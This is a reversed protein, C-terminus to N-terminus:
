KNTSNATGPKLVVLKFINDALALQTVYEMVTRVPVNNVSIIVDGISCIGSAFAANTFGTVLVGQQSNQPKIGLDFLPCRLQLTHHCYNSISSVQNFNEDYTLPKRPRSTRVPRSPISARADQSLKKLIVKPQNSVIKEIQDKSCGPAPEEFRRIIVKPQNGVIRKIEEQSCGPASNGTSNHHAESTTPPPIFHSAPSVQPEALSPEPVEETRTKEPKSRSTPSVKSDIVPSPNVIPAPQTSVRVPPPAPASFGSVPLSPSTIVHPQSNSPIIFSPPNPQFTVTAKQFANEYEPDALHSPRKTFLKCRDPAITTTFGYRDITVGGTPTIDQVLFPGQYKSDLKPAPGPPKSVWIWDGVSFRDTGIKRRAEYQRKMREAVIALRKKVTAHVQNLRKRLKDYTEPHRTEKAIPIGFELDPMLTPKRGFLIEFPSFGVSEHQTTRLAHLCPHLYAMWDQDSQAYKSLMDSLTRIQREAQGDAKPSYALTHTQQIGLIRSQTHLLSNTFERGMDSHLYSPIGWRCYVDNLLIEAVTKADKSRIPFAEPWKSFYDVVVLVKTYGRSQPLTLIDMAIREFPFCTPDSPRLPAWKKHSDIKRSECAICSSIYAQIDTSMNPWFYRQQLQSLVRNRGMHGSLPMDHYLHLLQPLAAGPVVINRNFHLLGELMKYGQYHRQFHRIIPLSQFPVPRPLPKNSNRALHTIIAVIAPDNAQFDQLPLTPSPTSKVPACVDPDSPLLPSDSALHPNRSLADANVHRPGPRYVLKFEYQQLEMMWRAIKGSPIQTKSHIFTLAKHDTRLTFPRGLIYSRFVRVGLVAAFSEQETVPWNKETQNFKRSAYAIPREKGDHVQSLTCGVGLDSADADIIFPLSFDPHGLVPATTLAHKLKEFAEQAEKPWQFRQLNSVDYLPAAIESFGKVFRRYFLCLGLFSKVDKASKPIPWQRVAEIKSPDTSIGEGSVRFGLYAVEQQLLYCKGPKLKLHYRQLRDFVKGLRSIHEDFTKSFIIVDDLFCLAIDWNLGALCCQMARQFSAPANTLGFPMRNFEFLGMPTTFATKHKAEEELEIQWYGSTLDLASFFKSNGLCDLADAIQPLPFSDKVTRSNLVRFDVAFRMSGDKKRVMVPPSSWPSTSPRIIGAELMESVQRRIEERTHPSSRRLTQRVPRSNGTDIGHKINQFCGLDTSTLSFVDRRDWLFEKLRNSESTSLEPWQFKNFFEERTVPCPKGQVAAASLVPLESQTIVSASAVVMGRALQIPAATTNCLMAVSHSNEAVALQFAPMVGKPLNVQNHPTLMIFDNVDSAKKILVPVPTFSSPKLTVSEKLQVIGVEEQEQIINPQSALAQISNIRPEAPSDCTVLRHNVPDVMFKLQGLARYGIIGPYALSAMVYPSETVSKGLITFKTPPGIYTTEQAANAVVCVSSRTDPFPFEPGYLERASSISLFIGSAGTDILCRDQWKKNGEEATVIYELIPPSGNAAFCGTDPRPVAELEDEM